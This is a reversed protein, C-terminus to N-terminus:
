REDLHLLMMAPWAQRALASEHPLDRLEVSQLEKDISDLDQRTQLRM